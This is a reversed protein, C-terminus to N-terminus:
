KNGNPYPFYGNVNWTYGNYRGLYPQFNGCQADPKCISALRNKARRNAITSAGIGNLGPKYKNFINANQAIQNGGAGLITSRRTGVGLNKKYLFGPFGTSNGYWFNGGSNAGGYIIYSNATIIPSFSPYLNYIFGNYSDNFYTVGPTYFQGDPFGNQQSPNSNYALWGNFTYGTPVILETDELTLIPIGSACEFALPSSNSIANEINAYYYYGACGVSLAYENMPGMILRPIMQTKEINSMLEVKHKLEHSFIFAKNREISHFENNITFAMNPDDSLYIVASTEFPSGNKAKDQHEPIEGIVWRMPVERFEDIKFYKALTIKLGTTLTVTFSQSKKKELFVKYNTQVEFSNILTKIDEENFFNNIVKINNINDEM